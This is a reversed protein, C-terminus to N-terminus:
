PISRGGQSKNAKVRQRNRLFANVSFLPFLPIALYQTLHLGLMAILVGAFPTRWIDLRLSSLWRSGVLVQPIQAPEAPKKHDDQV